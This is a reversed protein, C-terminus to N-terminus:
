SNRSARSWKTIRRQPSARPEPCRAPCPPTWRRCKSSGCRRTSMPRPQLRSFSCRPWRNQSASWPRWSGALAGFSISGDALSSFSAARFWFCLFVRLQGRNHTLYDSQAQLKYSDDCPPLRFSCSCRFVWRVTIPINLRKESEMEHERVGSRM